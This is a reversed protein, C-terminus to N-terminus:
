GDSIKHRLIQTGCEPCRPELTGFLNYGCKECRGEKRRSRARGLRLVAFSSIPTVPLTILHYPLNDIWLRLPIIADGFLLVVAFTWSALIWRKGVVLAIIIGAAVSVMIRPVLSLLRFLEGALSSFLSQCITTIGSRFLFGIWRATAEPLVLLSILVGALSVVGVVLISRSTSKMQSVEFM